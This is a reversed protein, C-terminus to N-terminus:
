LLHLVVSVSIIPARVFCYANICVFVLLTGVYSSSYHPPSVFILGSAIFSFWAHLRDFTLFPKRRAIAVLSPVLIWWVSEKPACASLYFSVRALRLKRNIFIRSFRRKFSRVFYRKASGRQELTKILKAAAPEEISTLSFGKEQRQPRRRLNACRLSLDDRRTKGYGITIASMKAESYISAFLVISFCSNMGTDYRFFTSHPTIAAWFNRFKYSQQSLPALSRKGPWRGIWWNVPKSTM